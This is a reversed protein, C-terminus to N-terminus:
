VRGFFSTCKGSDNSFNAKIYGGDKNVWMYNKTLSYSTFDNDNLYSVISEKSVIAESSSLFEDLVSYNASNIESKLNSSDSLDTKDDKLLDDDIDITITATKASYYTATLTTDDTIKWTYKNYKEDVLEGDSGIISNIEEVTNEPKIKDMYEFVKLDEKNSETTSETSNESSNSKSDKNSDNDKSGCGSLSFVLCLILALLGIKSITKKM